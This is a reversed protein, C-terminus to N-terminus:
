KIICLTLVRLWTAGSEWSSLEYSAAKMDIKLTPDGIEAEEVDQAIRSTYHNLGFYDSTGKIYEIEEQTFSPLRSKSFGEM